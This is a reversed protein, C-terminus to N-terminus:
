KGRIGLLVLVKNLFHAALHHVQPLLDDCPLGFGTTSLVVHDPVEFLSNFHEGFLDLVQRDVVRDRIRGGM